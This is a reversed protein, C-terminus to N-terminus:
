ALSAEASLPAPTSPPDGRPSRSFFSIKPICDEDPTAEYEHDDEGLLGGIKFQVRGLHKAYINLYRIGGRHQAHVVKLSVAGFSMWAAEEEGGVDDAHFQLIGDHGGKVWAGTVNIHQFYTEGCQAGLRQVEAEVRLLVHPAEAGRPIHLLVHKGPRMLDFRQGNINQLHPDGKASTSGGNTGATSATTPPATPSPTPPPTPAATPPFVGDIVKKFTSRETGLAGTASGGDGLQGMNDQGATWVSGDSLLVATVFGGVAAAQAGDLVQALTDRDTNGGDGLMGYDNWGATWLTGDSKVVALAYGNGQAISQAGDLVQM